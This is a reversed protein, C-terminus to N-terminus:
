NAPKLPLLVAREFICVVDGNQNTGTTKVTLIGQNPKSNSVRKELIETHAYITDGHFVPLIHKLEKVGLSAIAKGSIDSVSMGTLLAYIYTGLVLNKGSPLENKAYNSDVHIPSGAMTLMSFIHDESETITKGPWHKYIDGVEFEDFFRGYRDSRADFERTM